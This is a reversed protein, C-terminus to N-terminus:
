KLESGLFREMECCTWRLNDGIENHLLIILTEFAFSNLIINNLICYTTVLSRLQKKGTKTHCNNKAFECLFEKSLTKM